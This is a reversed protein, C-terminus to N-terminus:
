TKLQCLRCYFRSLYGTRGCADTVVQPDYDVWILEDETTVKPQGQAMQQPAEAECFHAFAIVFGAAAHNRARQYAGTWPGTSQHLAGWRGM